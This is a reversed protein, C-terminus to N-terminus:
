GALSAPGAPQRASGCRSSTGAATNRASGASWGPRRGGDWALFFATRGIWERWRREDYGTEQDLTSAFACPADALAALRVDRLDAWDESQVRRIEYEM